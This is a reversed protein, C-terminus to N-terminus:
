KGGTSSYRHTNPRTRRKNTKQKVKGYQITGRSVIGARETRRENQVPEVHFVPYLILIHTSYVIVASYALVTNPNQM